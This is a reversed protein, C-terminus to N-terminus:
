QPFLVPFPDARRDRGARGATTALRPLSVARRRSQHMRGQVVGIHDGTTM